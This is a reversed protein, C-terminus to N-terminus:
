LRGRAVVVTLRIQRELLTPEDPAAWGQKSNPVFGKAYRSALCAYAVVGFANGLKAQALAKNAAIKADHIRGEVARLATVLSPTVTGAYLAELDLGNRVHAPLWSSRRVCWQPTTVILRSLGWAIAAERAVDSHPTTLTTIGCALASLRSLNGHTADHYADIEAWNAFPATDLASEHGDIMADFYLRPLAVEQVTQSLAIAIPQARVVTGTYIQEVVDRWWQLRIAALGAETVAARARGIEHAFLILSLVRHREQAGLFSTALTRDPDVRAAQEILEQTLSPM